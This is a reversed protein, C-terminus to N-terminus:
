GGEEDFVDTIRVTAGGPAEGGASAVSQEGDAAFVAGGPQEPVFVAGQFVGSRQGGGTCAHQAHGEMGDQGLEKQPTIITGDPTNFLYTHTKFSVPVTTLCKGRNKQEQNVSEDCDIM